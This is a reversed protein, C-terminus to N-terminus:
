QLVAEIAARIESVQAASDVKQGDFDRVYFVDVVQNVNTAIKALWIDLQCRFLADTVAFLLGPFDYTFVEVITFFRSTDNDVVVRTPRNSGPPRVAKWEARRERIAAGVDLRGSLAANLDEAARDWKEAEFIEDPPPRVYFVDVAVNDRWTYIRANLIDVGNLTLVGAIRSFLGPMDHACLSVARTDPTETREIKWVFAQDGLLRHLNVHAIMEDPEASLLYRPSMVKMLAEAESRIEDTPAMRLAKAKKEDVRAVAERSALEGHRVISLVNLYLGQMLSLTWSNWAKPGTAVSDAVTLLYLMQLTEADHVRRACFLATEEDEIDRRAATKALLLHERVLLRVTEVFSPSYGKEALIAGVIPVGKESHSGGPEGKGVDHLLAAWLLPRPDALGAFLEGCLTGFTPDDPTGFSKVTQVTRVSHTDVPFLHYDDYQIRHYIASLEPIFRRLFGTNMMEALVNHETNPTALIREFTAVATVSQRFRDDVLEAMDGILRRAEASLPVGLRASAEFVGMLLEPAAAVAEPSTFRLMGRAMELGPVGIDGEVTPGDERSRWRSELENVFVAHQQKVREMRIHLDGLFREVPQQGDEARYGLHDAMKEQYDFHLQDVKRGALYHLHNRIHRIFDLAEAMERQETHSLYGYYELDRFERVDSAIRGVWLITHYDRLGGKGEKLNPELLYSSDGFRDHRTRNTRVLWDTLEEARPRIVTERFARRFSAFLPSHGRIFRADLLATLGEVEEPVTLPEALTRITHSVHLGGDWLPYTVERVLQGAADPIEDDFLFLLDVDSHICQERRGYGGLAVIAYARGAATLDAAARSEECTEDLYEDVLRTHRRIFEPVRDELFDRILGARRSILRQAAATIETDTM